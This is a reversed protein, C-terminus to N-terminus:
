SLQGLLASLRLVLPVCLALIAVRAVLAVRGAMAREGADQCLQGALEGIVTIGMARLMAMRADGDMESFLDVIQRAEPVMAPLQSAMMALVFAGVALSMVTAMEPRQTRIAACIIAAAVCLGMWLYAM